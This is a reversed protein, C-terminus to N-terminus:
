KYQKTIESELEMLRDIVKMQKAGLQQELKILLERQKKLLENLTQM